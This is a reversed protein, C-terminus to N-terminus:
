AEWFRPVASPWDMGQRRAVTDAALVDAISSAGRLM